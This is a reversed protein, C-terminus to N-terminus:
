TASEVSALIADLQDPNKTYDLAAKWFADVETQPMLSNGLPYTAKSDALVQSAKKLFPDTYADSGVNTNPSLWRGTSAILTAAEPTAFYKVLAASQPTTTLVGIIEGSISRIRPYQPNFDPVPFFDLDTGAKLDPFSDMIIGGMFTAQQNLDCGPPSTFM